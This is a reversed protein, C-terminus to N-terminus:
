KYEDNFLNERELRKKIVYLCLSLNTGIFLHKKNKYTHGIGILKRDIGEETHILKYVGGGSIGEPKIHISHEFNSDM